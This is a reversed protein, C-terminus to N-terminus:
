GFQNGCEFCTGPQTRQQSPLCLYQIKVSRFCQVLAFLSFSFSYGSCLALWLGAAKILALPDFCNHPFNILHTFFHISNIFTNSFPTIDRIGSM